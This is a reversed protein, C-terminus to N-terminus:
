KSEYKKRLAPILERQYTDQVWQFTDIMINEPPRGPHVWTGKSRSKDSIVRFTMISREVKGTKANKNQFVSVGQVNKSLSKGSKSNNLDKISFSHIKGIRPSGNSDTALAKNKSYRIGKSRFFTKLEGVLDDGSTSTKKATNKKEIPIIRYKSGDKATKGNKLLESMFGGKRGEEIWLAEERIGVTIFNESQQEIYINEKYKNGLSNPLQDALKQAHKVAGDGLSKAILKMDSEFQKKVKEKVEKLIDSTKIDFTLKM